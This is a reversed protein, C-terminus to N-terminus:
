PFISTRTGDSVARKELEHIPMNIQKGIAKGNRYTIVNLTAANKPVSLPVTYQPSHHDPNTNDFTYYISLDKIETVLEISLNGTADRRPAFVVDYMSRAYNIDHFDFREFQSEVRRTFGDWEKRSAPSWASEAVAFARPWTMYQAHRFQPVSEAWLNGQVGLMLSDPIGKPQPEFQYVSKLRAMNYTNPEILVEGQYLDLYYYPTPSMVVKHGKRAAKQGGSVGTWSMVAANPPLGGELIEDWGIMKKGKNKILSAMRHIFYSQIKEGDKRDSDSVVGQCKPCELWYKKIAEDGGIHIYESPFLAAVESLVSDMFSYVKENGVCVTNQIEGFFKCGNAVFFPAPKCALEPYATLAALFHGPADIEPVVTVYREAAYAIVERIDDQTYYGSDSAIEGAKPKDVNWVIGTRGVRRSGVETLKPYSKIEIRWGQDDTLHWHFVNMKYRALLDIYDIVEQKTMFHRSVDLMLGRWAFRPSDKIEVCPIFWMRRIPISSEIETPLLQLLTQIGYFVGAGDNASLLVGEPTVSLAYGDPKLASDVSVNRKLLIYPKKKEIVSSQQFTLGTGPSLHHVLYNVLKQMESDKADSVIVTEQTLEFYKDKFIKVSEPQPIVQIESPFNERIQPQPSELSKQIMVALFGMCLGGFIVSALTLLIRKM